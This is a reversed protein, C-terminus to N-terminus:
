NNQTLLFPTMVGQSRNENTFVAFLIRDMSTHDSLVGMPRTRRKVERFRREIANTTRTALRWKHDSFHFFTLLEDLDDRLCKVARPYTKAWTDAFGRAAHRAKVVTKAHSIAHLDSKVEDWDKKRVKDLINRTKHAWCRQLPINPYVSQLAAHLGLGGDIVIIETGQCELGRRCLDILFTEWSQRSEGRALRFDIVEKRGDPRIGLAVLVPRRVAGAGTKRALVVGDFLLVKYQDTLRRTHYAEVAEDLSKAVRSVTAASVPRGLLPLLVRTVKRTSCGFVFCALIMQDVTPSRRAYARLFAGASATRSRTVHLEIDGVETSVTRPYYGNRRDKIGVKDVEQLYSDIYADMQTELFQRLANRTAERCQEGWGIGRLKMQKIVEIADPLNLLTAHQPM